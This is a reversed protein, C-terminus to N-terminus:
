FACGPHVSEHAKPVPDPDSHPHPDPTPRAHLNLPPPGVRLREKPIQNSSVVLMQTTTM